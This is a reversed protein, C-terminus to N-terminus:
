LAYKRYFTQLVVQTSAHSGFGIATVRYLYTVDEAAAGPATYPMVEIIYRPARAPLSGGGTPLVQGTHTGYAVSAGHEDLLDVTQWVPTAGAARLCLGRTEGAAGCGDAFGAMSDHTFLHARTGVELENEADLLAAEAAQFAIQRDRENRSAREGQLAVQAATIGIALVALLMMLAVILAAGDQTRKGKNLVSTM